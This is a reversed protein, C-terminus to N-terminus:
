ISNTAHYITGRLVIELNKHCKPCAWVVLLPYNYDNHHGQIERIEYKENCQSCTTPKKIKGTAVASQLMGQAKEKPCGSQRRETQRIISKTRYKKTRYYKSNYEVRTHQNEAKYKAVCSRCWPQFGDKTKKCMSFCFFGKPTKCKNCLKSFKYM